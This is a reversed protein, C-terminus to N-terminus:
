PRCFSGMTGNVRLSLQVIFLHIYIFVRLYIFLLLFYFYGAIKSEMCAFDRIYFFQEKFYERDTEVGYNVAVYYSPGFSESKM